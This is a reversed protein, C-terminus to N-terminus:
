LGLGYFAISGKYHGSPLPTPVDLTFNVELANTDCPKLPQWLLVRANNQLHVSYSQAVNNAKIVHAKINEAPIIGTGKSQTMSTASVFVAMQTGVNDPDINHITVVNEKASVNTAGPTTKGFCLGTFQAYNANGDNNKPEFRDNDKTIEIGVMPNLFIKGKLVPRTCKGHGHGHKGDRAKVYVDFCGYAGAPVTWQAYFTAGTSTTTSPDFGAPITYTPNKPNGGQPVLLFDVGAGMAQLDQVGNPDSVNIYFTVGEGTYAYAMLADSRLLKPTVGTTNKYEYVKWGQLTTIKLEYSNCDIEPPYNCVTVCTNYGETYGTGYGSHAFASGM